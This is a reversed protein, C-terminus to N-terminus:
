YFVTFHLRPKAAIGVSDLVHLVVYLIKSPLSALSVKVAADLVKWSNWTHVCKPSQHLSLFLGTNPPHPPFFSGM